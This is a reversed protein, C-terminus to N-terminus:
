FIIRSLIINYIYNLYHVNLSVALNKMAIIDESWLSLIKITTYEYCLNLQIDELSQFTDVAFNLSHRELLWLFKEKVQEQVWIKKLPFNDTIILCNILAYLDSDKFVIM